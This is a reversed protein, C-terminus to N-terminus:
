YNQNEISIGFDSIPIEGNFDWTGEILFKPNKQNKFFLSLKLDNL